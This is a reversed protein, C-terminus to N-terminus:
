RTDKLMLSYRIGYLMIVGLVLFIFQIDLFILSLSAVVPGVVYAAPRTIRFFSIIDNDDGDVYKFFHSETMIEVFSAGVRTMFLVTSWLIFNAATILSLPITFLAILIFGAILLEKEGLWMDAIKGAPYELLAFPLLMIAFMMGIETWEFGIHNHLYVPLYIVMWSFFFRMMFQAMLTGYINKNKKISLWTQWVKTDLYDPDKFTKLKLVFFLFPILFIASILYIKWYDGNTLVLGALFPAIILASNVITLVMGRIGGTKGEDKTYTELFVDINFLILPYVALQLIFLLVIAYVNQIFALGLFILFELFTLTIIIKYNGFVRLIKSILILAGVGFISGIIWVLGMLGEEVYTNLFSSSIYVVFFLHFAFFFNAVYLINFAKRPRLTRVITEM